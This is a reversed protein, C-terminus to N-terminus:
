KGDDEQEWNIEENGCHKEGKKRCKVSRESEKTFEFLFLSSQGKIRNSVIVRKLKM